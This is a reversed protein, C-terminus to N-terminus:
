CRSKSKLALHSKPLTKIRPCGHSGLFPINKGNEENRIGYNNTKEGVLIYHEEGLCRAGTGKGCRPATVSSRKHNWQLAQRKLTGWGGDSVQCWPRHQEMGIQPGDWVGHQGSELNLSDSASGVSWWPPPPAAPHLVMMKSPSSRGVWFGHLRGRWLHCKEPETILASKSRIAQTGSTIVFCSTIIALGHRPHDGTQLCCLVADPPPAPSGGLASAGKHRWLSHRM